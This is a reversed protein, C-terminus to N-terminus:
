HQVLGVTDASHVIDDHVFLCGDHDGSMVDLLNSPAINRQCEPCYESKLNFTDRSGLRNLNCQVTYGMSEMIEIDDDIVGIFGPTKNHGCCCGTTRIGCDWLQNIEDAICADVCITDPHLSGECRGRMHYPRNLEIQNGYSGIDIKKCQCM